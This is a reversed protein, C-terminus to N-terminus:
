RQSPRRLFPPPEASFRAPRTEDAPLRCLPPANLLERLTPPEGEGGSVYVLPWCDECECDPSHFPATM